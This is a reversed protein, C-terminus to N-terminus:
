ADPLSDPILELVFNHKEIIEKLITVYGEIYQDMNLIFAEANYIQIKSVGGKFLHSLDELAEILADLNSALYKKEGFLERSLLNFFHYTNSIKNGDLLINKPQFTEIKGSYLRLAQCYDYQHIYLSSLHKVEKEWNHFINILNQNYLRYGLDCYPEKEFSYWDIQGLISVETGEITLQKLVKIKLVSIGVEINDENSINIILKVSQGIPMALCTAVEYLYIQYVEKFTNEKFFYEDIYNEDIFCYGCDIYKDNEGVISINLFRNM